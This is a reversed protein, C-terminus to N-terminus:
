VEEGTLWSRLQRKAQQFEPSYKLDSGRHQSFPPTYRHIIRAPRRNLVLVEDALYLVEEPDHSVCVFSTGTKERTKLVIDQLAQRSEFDLASFPEDLLLVQPRPLLARAFAMRQRMGGSLQDPYKTLDEGALGVLDALEKAERRADGNPRSGVLHGLRSGGAAKGFRAGFAINDAVTLWDFAVQAQVVMGIGRGPRRVPRGDLAVQGRYDDDLGALIRLLTSKGCGSPGYLCLITGRPLRFGVEGLVPQTSGHNTSFVKSVVHADLM